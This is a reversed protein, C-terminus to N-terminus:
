LVNHFLSAAKDSFMIELAQDLRQYRDYLHWRSNSSIWYLKWDGRGVDFLLRGVPDHITCAEIASFRDFFIVYGNDVPNVKSPIGRGSFFRLILRQSFDNPHKQM